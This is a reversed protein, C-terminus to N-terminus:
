VNCASFQRGYLLRAQVKEQFLGGTTRNKYIVVEGLRGGLICLSLPVPLKSQLQLSYLSGKRNSDLCPSFKQLTLRSDLFQYIASAANRKTPVLLGVLEFMLNLCPGMKHIWNLFNYVNKSQFKWLSLEGNVKRGCNVFNGDTATTTTSPEM